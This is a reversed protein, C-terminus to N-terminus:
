HVHPQSFLMGRSAEFSSATSWWTRLVSWPSNTTILGTTESVYWSSCGASFISDALDAELQHQYLSFVEARVQVAEMRSELTAGICALVNLTQAELMSLISGHNYNTNPSDLLFLNPFDPIRKRSAATAGAHLEEGQAKRMEVNRVFQQTHSGTALIVVDARVEVEQGSKAKVVIGDSFFRVASGAVIEVNKRLLASIWECSILARRCFMAGDPTLHELNRADVEEGSALIRAHELSLTKLM